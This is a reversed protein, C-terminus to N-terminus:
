ERERRHRGDIRQLSHKVVYAGVNGGLKQWVKCSHRFHIGGFVRADVVEDLAASFSWYSRSQGPLADNTVTIPIDVGFYRSLVAVAAGSACSHASPYEPFPPTAILPTWNPDAITDPNNDTDAL